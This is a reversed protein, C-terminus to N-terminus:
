MSVGKGTFDYEFIKEVDREISYPIDYSLFDDSLRHDEVPADYSEEINLSPPETSIQSTKPSSYNSPGYSNIDDLEKYPSFNEDEGSDKNHSEYKVSFPTAEYPLEHHMDKPIENLSQNPIEAPFSGHLYAIPETSRLKQLFTNALNQEPNAFGLKSPMIESEVHVLIPTYLMALFTVEMKTHHPDNIVPGNEINESHAINTTTTSASNTNKNSPSLSKKSTDHPFESIPRQPHSNPDYHLGPNTSYSNLFDGNSIMGYPYSPYTQHNRSEQAIQHSPNNSYRPFEPGPISFYPTQLSEDSKTLLEPNTSFKEPISTVPTTIEVNSNQSSSQPMPLLSYPIQSSPVYVPISDAIVQPTSTSTSKSDGSTSGDSKSTATSGGDLNPSSTTPIPPPAFPKVTNKSTITPIPPPAYSKSPSLPAGTTSDTSSETVVTESNESDSSSTSDTGSDHDHEAITISDENSVSPLAYPDNLKDLGPQLIWSMMEPTAYGGYSAYSKFQNLEATLTHSTPDFKELSENDFESVERDSKESEEYDSDFIPIITVDDKTEIAAGGSEVSTVSITSSATKSTNSTQSETGSESIKSSVTSEKSSYKAIEVEATTNAAPYKDVNDPYKDEHSSAPYATVLFVVQFIVFLKLLM